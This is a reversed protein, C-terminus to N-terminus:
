EMRWALEREREKQSAIARLRRDVVVGELPTRNQRNFWAICLIRRMWELNGGEEARARYKFETAVPSCPHRLCYLLLDRQEEAKADPQDQGAIAWQWGQIYVEIVDADTLQIESGDMSLALREVTDSVKLKGTPRPLNQAAWESEGTRPEHERCCHGPLIPSPKCPQRRYINITLHPTATDM